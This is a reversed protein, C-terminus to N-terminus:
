AKFKARRNRAFERGRARMCERCQQTGNTRVILNAGELTHGRICHTHKLKRRTGDWAVGAKEMARATSGQTAGAKKALLTRGEGDSLSVVDEAELQQVLRAVPVAWTKGNIANAATRSHVGYRRAIETFTAGHKRMARMEEVTAFNLKASPNYDGVPRGAASVGITRM